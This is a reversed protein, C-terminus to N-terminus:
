LIMKIQPNREFYVCWTSVIIDKVFSDNSFYKYKWSQCFINKVIQFHAKLSNGYKIAHEKIKFCDDLLMQDRKRLLVDDSLWPAKVRCVHWALRSMSEAFPKLDNMSCQNWFEEKNFEPDNSIALLIMAWDCIYRLTIGERLFHRHAHQLYYLANFMLCPKEMYTDGIRETPQNELLNQLYCEFVKRQKKGRVTTCIKHNEVHVDMFTFTSHRYDSRDVPCGFAEVTLNGAEHNSSLFCDIDSSPRLSYDPYYTGFALGKLIWTRIGHQHWVASLEKASQYQGKCKQISINSCGFWRMTEIEPIVGKINLRQFGAFSLAAVGQSTVIEVLENWDIGQPLNFISRTKLGVQLFNYITEQTSM